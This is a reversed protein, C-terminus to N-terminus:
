HVSEIEKFVARVVVVILTHEYDWQLKTRYVCVLSVRVNM